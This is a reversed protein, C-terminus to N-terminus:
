QIAHQWWWINKAYSLWGWKTHGKTFWKIGCATEPMSKKSHCYTHYSCSVATVSALWRHTHTHTHTHTKKHKRTIFFYVYNSPMNTISTVSIRNSFHASGTGKPFEVGNSM